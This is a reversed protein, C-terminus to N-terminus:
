KLRSFIDAIALDRVEQGTKLDKLAATKTEVESTGVTVVHTAGIRDAHRFQNALKPVLGIDSRLNKSRLQNLISFGYDWADQTAVAVFVMQEASPKILNLEEMGAILRDLGVSGGIGPLDRTTFRSALNNYRGGSCISGLSPLLDLTTEFVIGTYYGLGRAVSLDLRLTVSRGEAIQRLVKLVQETRLIEAEADANGAVVTRVHKLDSDGSQDTRALDSLLESAGGGAGPIANILDAVKAPGIKALKDLAILVETEQAPTLGPCRTSILGSLIRRNGLAMTTGGCGANSLIRVFVSLVEIDAMMTDAGIIDLDCQTFERYRGKQTNEGRWVDGMQLKKFPFTLTGQHEGVFRAFPVTLDFRLAVDRDGNDKFRYVQKDTEDSGQGMLTEAYELAPTGISRFGALAAERRILDMIELRKEMQDPMYDRFGKLRKPEIIGHKSM